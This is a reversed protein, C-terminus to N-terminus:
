RGELSRLGIGSTLLFSRNDLSFLHGFARFGRLRGLSSRAQFRERSQREREKEILDFLRDIQEPTLSRALPDAATALGSIAQVMEEIERVMEERPPEASSQAEPTGESARSEGRKRAMFCERGETSTWLTRWNKCPTEASSPSSRASLVPPLFALKCEACNIECCACSPM